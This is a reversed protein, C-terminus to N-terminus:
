LEGFAYTWGAKELLDLLLPLPLGVVSFYDGQVRRVLASGRGQIGYAGAKDLPEGTDVYQRAVEPGFARFEVETREVGSLVGGGPLALALGSVVSHTRGALRCLMEVGEAPVSPKGMIEGDLVVVTDGGLVMAGPRHRSVEVAKARALREAHAEPTEDCLIEESTGSPLVEFPLGLMRLIQARRPSASALVLDPPDTM